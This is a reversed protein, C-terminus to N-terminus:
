AGLPADTESGLITDSDQRNVRGSSAAGCPVDNKREVINTPVAYTEVRIETQESSKERSLRRPHSHSKVHSQGTPCVGLNMLSGTEVAEGNLYELDESEM